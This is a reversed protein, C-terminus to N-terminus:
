RNKTTFKDGVRYDHDIKTTNERAVDKNIKMQKHQRTYRWDAVHNTPPIIDRGFVLQGPIKEKKRHYTSQVVFVASALIGM